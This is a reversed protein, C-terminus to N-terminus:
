DRTPADLALFIDSPEGLATAALLLVLTPLIRPLVAREEIM